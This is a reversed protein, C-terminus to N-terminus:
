REGITFRTSPTKVGTTRHARIRDEGPPEARVLPPDPLLEPAIHRLAIEAEDRVDPVAHELANLLAPVIAEDVRGIRGLAYAAGAPLYGGARLMRLLAPVASRADPGIAGLALAAEEAVNGNVDTLLEELRAVAQDTGLAGLARITALRQEEKSSRLLHILHPFVFDARRGISGLACTAQLRLAANEDQMAAEVLEAVAREAPAGVAALAEAAATRLFPNEDHLAQVLADVAPTAKPGM